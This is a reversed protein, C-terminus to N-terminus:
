GSWLWPFYHTIRAGSQESIRYVIMGPLIAGSIWISLKSWRFSKAMSVAKVKAGDANETIQKSLHKAQDRRAQKLKNSKTGVCDWERPLWGAPNNGPVCFQAPLVTSLAFWASIMMTSAFLAALLGLSYDPQEKSILALGGGLAGTAAAVLLSGWSMARQDAATAIALQAQLRLEGERLAERQLEEPLASFSEFDNSM